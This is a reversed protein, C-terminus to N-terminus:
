KLDMGIQYINDSILLELIRVRATEDRDKLIRKVLKDFTIHKCERQM